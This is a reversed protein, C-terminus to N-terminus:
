KKIFVCQGMVNSIFIRDESDKVEDIYKKMGKTTSTGYDDFVIIGGSLLNPWIFAVIDKASQYVDVDIHVFAVSEGAIYGGTEEPFIGQLIQINKLNMKDALEKVVSVDTDAHEGGNYCDDVDGAKVVGLFTDCLYVTSANNEMAVKKAIVCGSGGRWTGVEIFIGKKLKCAQGVMDWIFKLKTMGCLSYKDAIICNNWFVEDEQWPIYAMPMILTGYPNDSTGAIHNEELWAYLFADYYIYDCNKKFGFGDLQRFIDERHHIPTVVVFVNEGKLKNPSCVTYGECEKCSEWNNDVFYKISNKFDSMLGLIERGRSGAGFIVIDKIGIEDIIKDMLYGM